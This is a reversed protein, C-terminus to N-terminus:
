SFTTRTNMDFQFFFFFQENTHMGLGNAESKRAIRLRKVSCVFIEWPVDGVLMWDGEKDEYTLVFESSGDLLGPAEETTAKKEEPILYEAGTTKIFFMDDLTRALSNYNSHAALDVKRGIMVGDMNVKVFFSSKNADSTNVDAAHVKNQCKESFDEEVALSKAQSVLSSIRYTRIPPWGVVQSLAARPPSCSSEAARKSGCSAHNGKTASSGSSSSSSSKSFGGSPFDEATLIRNRGAPCQGWVGIKSKKLGGGGGGLSLGLGLELDSDEEPHSSYSESVTSMSNGSGATGGGGTGDMLELTTADM